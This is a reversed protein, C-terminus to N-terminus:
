VFLARGKGDRIQCLHEDRARSLSWVRILMARYRGRESAQGDIPSYAYRGKQTTAGLVHQGLGGDGVADLLADRQTPVVLCRQCEGLERRLPRRQRDEHGESDDIQLEASQHAGPLLPQLRNRRRGGMGLRSSQQGSHADREVFALVCERIEMGHDIERRRRWLIGGARRHMQCQMVELLQGIKLLQV